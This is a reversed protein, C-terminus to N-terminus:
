LGNFYPSLSHTSYHLDIFAYFSYGGAIAGDSLKSSSGNSACPPATGDDCTPALAFSTPDITYPLGYNALATTLTGNAALTPLLAFSVNPAQQRFQQFLYMRVLTQAGTPTAELSVRGNSGVASQCGVMNARLHLASRIASEIRTGFTSDFSSIDANLIFSILLSSAPIQRSQGCGLNVLGQPLDNTLAYISQISDMTIVDDFIRFADIYGDFADSTTNGGLRGYTRLGQIPYVMNNVYAVRKGNVFAGWTSRLYQNATPQLTLVVDYWTGAAIGDIVNLTSIRNGYSSTVTFLLTNGGDTLTLSIQNQYQNGNNGIFLLTASTKTRVKFSIHISFGSSGDYLQNFQGGLEPLLVGVTNSGIISRLNVYQVYNKDLTLIGTHKSPPTDAQSWGYGAIGTLNVLPIPNRAFDVEFIPLRSSVM